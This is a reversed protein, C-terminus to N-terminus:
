LVRGYEYFYYIIHVVRSSKVNLEFYRFPISAISICLLLPSLTYLLLSYVLTYVHLIVNTENLYNNECCYYIIRNSVHNDFIVM